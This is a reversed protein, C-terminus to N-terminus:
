CLVADPAIHCTLGSGTTLLRQGNPLALNVISSGQALRGAVIPGTFDTLIVAFSGATDVRQVDIGPYLVHPSAFGDTSYTGTETTAIDVYSVNGYGVKMVRANSRPETAVWDQHTIRYDADGIRVLADPDIGNPAPAEDAFVIGPDMAALATACIAGLTMGLLLHRDPLDM